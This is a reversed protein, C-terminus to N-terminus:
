HIAEISFGRRALKAAPQESVQEVRSAPPGQALAARLREMKAATCEAHVEVAGDGCNRVWGDIGLERAAREVFFRFGM